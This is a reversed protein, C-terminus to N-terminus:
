RDRARRPAAGLLPGARALRELNVVDDIEFVLRFRIVSFLRVGLRPVEGRSHEWPGDSSKMSSSPWGIRPSSHLSHRASAVSDSFGSVYSRRSTTRFAQGALFSISNISRYAQGWQKVVGLREDM